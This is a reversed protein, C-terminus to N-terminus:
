LNQALTGWLEMENFSEEEEEIRENRFRMENLHFHVFYYDCKWHLVAALEKTGREDKKINCM